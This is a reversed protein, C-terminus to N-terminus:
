APGTVQRSVRAAIATVVEYNITGLTAALEDALITEGEQEGVIVVEDGEAVRGRLSSVAVLSNDMTIRGRQPCRQGRVLMSMRNSLPRDLGDGYGIPVTAILQPRDTVYSHGYSLGTGAPVEKLQVIRSSWRLVPRLQEALPSHMEASPKLGYMAIGPRVADYRAQPLDLVAASNAMHAMKVRAGCTRRLADFREIQLEAHAKDTEDARAFHSMLARVEVRDFRDVHDLLAPVEDPQLGLRGMGTDVKVHIRAVTDYRAAAAALADIMDRTCVASECGSAVIAEAHEPLSASLLLFRAEVGADRLAIAESVDAVCLERHGREVLFRGVLAGGHGYANAKIVPWLTSSGAQRSLLALNHALNGLDITARTLRRAQEM